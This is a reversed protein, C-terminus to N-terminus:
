KVECPKKKKKKQVLRDCCQVYFRSGQTHGPADQMDQGRRVKKLEERESGHVTSQGTTRSAELPVLSKGEEPNEYLTKEKCPEEAWGSM